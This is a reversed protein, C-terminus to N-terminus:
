EVAVGLGALRTRVEDARRGAPMERLLRRYTEVAAAQDGSRQQVRALDVMLEEYLFEGPGAEALAGHYAEAAQALDGEGEWAYAIGARALRRVTVAGDLGLARAYAERAAAYQRADRRLTGLLYATEAATRARPHRELVTELERRAAARAEDTAERAVAPQARGRATVHAELARAQERSLWLWGGGLVVALALIVGGALALARPSPTPLTGRTLM